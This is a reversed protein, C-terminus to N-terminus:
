GLIGFVKDINFVLAGEINDIQNDDKMLNFWIIQFLGLWVLSEKMLKIWKVWITTSNNLSLFWSGGSM